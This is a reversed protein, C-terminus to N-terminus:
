TSKICESKHLKNSVVDMPNLWTSPLDEDSKYEVDNSRLDAQPGSMLDIVQHNNELEIVQVGSSSDTQQHSSEM